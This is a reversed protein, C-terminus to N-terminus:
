GLKKLFNALLRVGYGSGGYPQDPRTEHEVFSPGAIDLHAWPIDEVFPKLFLAATITGGPRGGVNKLDAIKSKVLEAYPAFLPLEWLPEGAEEAAVLLKHALKRDTSLLASIEEGLAVVCAGTLTALDIILDPELTRAYCLADALTLRGEADTNLVEITTGNMAQVVDGPRYANGGPMNEAALFIGHVEVSPKLMKVARFLGLVTAAGAMDCKMTMMADAPKISLGGSDFTIAKGVIAVRKKAGKPKYMLHVGVPPHVSGRAVALTAEMNLEEMKAADLFEVQVNGGALHEAEKALAGPTMHASPTNVLDRAYCTAESLLTGLEIGEKIAKANRVSTEWLAVSKLRRKQDEKKRLTGHYTHFRYDSLYVGEILAQAALRLESATQLFPPLVTVVSEANAKEALKVLQGGIKRLGDVDFKKKEGIGILAIKKPKISGFTAYLASQGWKGVFQDRTILELLQGNFEEDARQVLDGFKQSDQTCLIVCLDCTKQFIDGSYLQIDM